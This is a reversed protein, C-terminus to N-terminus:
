KATESGSIKDCSARSQRYMLLSLMSSEDACNCNAAQCSPSVTVNLGQSPPKTSRAIDGNSRTTSIPLKGTAAIVPQCSGQELGEEIVLTMSPDKPLFLRLASITIETVSAARTMISHSKTPPNGSTCGRCQHPSGPANMVAEATAAARNTAVGQDTRSDFMGKSNIAM